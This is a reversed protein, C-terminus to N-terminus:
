IGRRRRIGPGTDEIEIYVYGSREFVMFTLTGSGNMATIANNAINMIARMIQNGDALIVLVEQFVKKVKILEPVKIATLANNVVDKVDIEKFEVASTKAFDMIDDIISDIISIEKEIAEIYKHAKGDKSDKM